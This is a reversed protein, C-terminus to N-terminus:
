YSFNCFRKLNKYIPKFIIRMKIISFKLVKTHKFIRTNREVEYNKKSKRSKKIIKVLKFFAVTTTSVNYKTYIEIM